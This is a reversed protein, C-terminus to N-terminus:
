RGDFLYMLVVLGPTAAFGIALLVIFLTGLFHVITSLRAPRIDRAASVLEFWGSRWTSLNYIGSGILITLWVAMGVLFLLTEM